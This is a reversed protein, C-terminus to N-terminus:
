SYNSYYNYNIKKNVNYERPKQITIEAKSKILFKAFGYTNIYIIYIIIFSLSEEIIYCKQFM